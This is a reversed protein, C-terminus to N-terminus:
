SSSKAVVFSVLVGSVYYAGEAELVRYHIDNEELM